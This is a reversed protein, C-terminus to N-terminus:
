RCGAVFANQFCVFDLITFAGNHDCDATPHEDLFLQQFAIFDLIDLTGDDNIDAPCSSSITVLYIAELGSEFEIGISLKDDEYTDRGLVIDTIIEGDLKSGTTVLKTFCNGDHTYLGSSGDSMMAVFAVDDGDNAIDVIDTVSADTGPLDTLEDVVLFLEDDSPLLYIAEITKADVTYFAHFAVSSTTLDNLLGGVLEIPYGGPAADGLAVLQEIKGGEHAFLGTEDDSFRGQFVIRDAAMDAVGFGTFPGERGPVKTEIDVILSFAPDDPPTMYLGSYFIGDQRNAVVVAGRDIAVGVPGEFVGGGPLADGDQALQTVVGDVFTYPFTPPDAPAAAFAVNDGDFFVANFGIAAFESGVLAELLGEEYRWVIQDGNFGWGVWTGGVYRHQGFGLGFSITSGDPLRTNSDFVREFSVQQAFAAPGLFMIIISLIRM